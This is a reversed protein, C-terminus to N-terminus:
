SINLCTLVTENNAASRKITHILFTGGGDTFQKGPLINQLYGGAKLGRVTYDVWKGKDYYCKKYAQTLAENFAAYNVADPNTISDVLLDLDNIFFVLNTSYLKGDASIKNGNVYVFSGSDITCGTLSNSTKGTYTFQQTGTNNIISLTGAYGFLSTDDVNITIPSTSLTAGGVATMFFKKSINTHYFDLTLDDGYHEGNAFSYDMGIDSGNPVAPMNKLTASISHMLYKSAPARKKVPPLTIASGSDKEIIKLQFNTGDYIVSPFFFFDRALIGLMNFSSNLSAPYANEWVDGGNTLWQINFILDKLKYSNTLRNYLRECEYNITTGVGLMACFGQFIKDLYYFNVDSYISSFHTFVYSKLDPLTIYQATSLIGNATFNINSFHLDSSPDVDTDPVITNFDIDGFFYCENDILVAAQLAKTNLLAGLVYNSKNRLKFDCSGIRLEGLSLDFGDEVDGIGDKVIINPTTEAGSLAADFFKVVVAGAPINITPHTYVKM